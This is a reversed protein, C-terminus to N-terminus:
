VPLLFSATLQEEPVRREAPLYINAKINLQSLYRCMLPGVDAWNLNGLGCGLAPMAISKIGEERYNDRLWQLGREISYIDSDERWHKKTPFLLFWREMNPNWPINPEDALEIDYLVERKYLQPKGMQIKKSRCLDQYYVYVDPFQYKARSALGKGMIGVVNVSVTFTQMDSFFMDGELINLYGSIARKRSPLFFLEPEVVVPINKKTAEIEVKVKSDHSAVYISHIFEPPVNGPVLCEAMIKRKSGNRDNWWEVEVSNQTIEALKKKGDTSTLIESAANAANGTTILVDDRNLINPKISIIVLNDVGSNHIVRYLMPNRPQFYLNAFEWLSRGDSLKKNKRKVVIDKDYIATFPIENAEIYGHCLIGKELISAANDIHTIYYLATFEKQKM